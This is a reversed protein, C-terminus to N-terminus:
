IGTFRALGGAHNARSHAWGDIQFIFAKAAKTDVGAIPTKPQLVFDGGPAVNIVHLIVFRGGKTKALMPLPQLRGVKFQPLVKGAFADTIKRTAAIAQEVSWGSRAASSGGKPRSCRIGQVVERTTPEGSGGKGYVTAFAKVFMVQFDGM